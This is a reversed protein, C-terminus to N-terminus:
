DDPSLRPNTNATQPITRMVTAETKSVESIEGNSDVLFYVTDLGWFMGDNGWVLGKQQNAALPGTLSVYGAGYQCCSGDGESDRVIFRHWGQSLGTVETSELSRYGGGSGDWTKVSQWTQTVDPRYDLTWSLEEPYDDTEINVVVVGANATPLTGPWFPKNVPAVMQEFDPWTSPRYHVGRKRLHADGNNLIYFEIEYFWGFQGSTSWLETGKVDDTIVVSGNGYGCCIGDAESDSVKFSYVIGVPLGAFTDTTVKGPTNISKQAQFKLPRTPDNKKLLGWALEEPYDDYTVTITIAGTIASNGFSNGNGPSTPAPTPAYSGNCKPYNSWLCMNQDLWDSVASVRANVGGYDHRACGIGFSVVGVLTGTKKHVMPGGSDGQCTDTGGLNVGSCFMYGEEFYHQYQSRCTHSGFALLTAEKLVPSMGAVTEGVQGFGMGWLYDGVGPVSSDRNIPIIEVGTPDGNDDVLASKELKLLLYDYDRTSVQADFNPHAVHEVIRRVVAGQEARRITRFYVNQSLDGKNDCHAATLVLDDHILAGGCFQDHWEAFYPHKSYNTVVNGGVVRTQPIEDLQLDRPHHLSLGDDPVADAKRTRKAPKGERPAKAAKRLNPQADTRLFVALLLLLQTTTRRTM